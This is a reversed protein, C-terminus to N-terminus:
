CSRRAQAADDNQLWALAAVLAFYLTTATIAMLLLLSALYRRSGFRADYNSHFASILTRGLQEDKSIADWKDPAFMRFYLTISEPTFPGLVEKRRVTRGHALFGAIPTCLIALLILTLLWDAIGLLQEYM